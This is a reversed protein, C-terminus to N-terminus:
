SELYNKPASRAKRNNSYLHGIDRGYYYYDRNYYTSFLMPKVDNFVVGLLKHRDTVNLAAEISRCSTKGQRIVMVLGDGLGTVIRADAMPSLPPADLIITDFDAKLCEILDKMKQLSLLEIPNLATGGSTLFFLNKLRRMYCYPSMHGNSLYQLLGPEPRVGLYSDLSPDRFDCDLVVVRRGPDMSFTLALNASIVSKGDERDPSSVTIVNSTTDANESLRVKLTKFQETIFSSANKLVEIKEGIVADAVVPILREFVLSSRKVIQEEELPLASSEEDAQMPKRDPLAQIIGLQNFVGLIRRLSTEEIGTSVLLGSVTAAHTLEMLVCL